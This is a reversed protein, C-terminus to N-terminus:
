AVAAYLAEAQKVAEASPDSGRPGALRVEVVVAGVRLVAVAVTYERGDLRLGLVYVRGHPVDRVTGLPRYRAAFTEELKTAGADYRSVVLVESLVRSATASSRGLYWTAEYSREVGAAVLRAESVEHERALAATDLPYRDKMQYGAPWVVLRALDAVAARGYPRWARLLTTEDTRLVTRLATRMDTDAAEDYLRFLAKPGYRAAIYRCVLWATEYAVGADDLLGFDSDGPLITPTGHADVVKGLDSGMVDVPITSGANGVWEAIGEILWKPSDPGDRGALAVHTIEHRLLTTTFPSDAKFGKPNIVVRNGAIEGPAGSSSMTYVRNAIAAFDFFVQPSELVRDLEDPDTPLVVVVREPWGHGVYAAVHQVADEIGRAVSDVAPEDAPHGLVLAHASKRVVLPGNEWPDVRVSTGSSTSADLDADSGLYWRSGRRVVTYVVRRGVPSQDFDKLEYHLIVVPLWLDDADGYRAWDISTPSYSGDTVDYSWSAFDLRSLSTFVEAQEAAWDRQLPDVLRLFAARDRDRIAAARRDFLGKLARDRDAARKRAAAPSETVQHREVAVSRPVDATAQRAALVSSDGALTALLLTGVALALSSRSLRSV